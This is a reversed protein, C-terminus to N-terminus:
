PVFQHAVRYMFVHNCTGSGKGVGSKTNAKYAPDCVLPYGVAQGQGSVLCGKTAHLPGSNGQAGGVLVLGLSILALTGMPMASLAVSVARYM